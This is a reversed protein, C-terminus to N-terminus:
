DPGGMIYRRSEHRRAETDRIMLRTNQAAKADFFKIADKDRLASAIATGAKGILLWPFHKLWLNEVNSSLVEDHKSYIMKLTYAADPTPFIRFYKPDLQYAKPAGEGPFSARLTEMDDKALPVWRDSAEAADGNFYWLPDDDWERIFDSPLKVREEGSVTSISSVESRLFWPLIAGTELEVQADQLAAIIETEKDSRFALNIQVRSVATDRDM